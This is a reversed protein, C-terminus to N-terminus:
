NVMYIEVTLCHMYHPIGSCIITFYKDFQRRYICLVVIPLACKVFCLYFVYFATSHGKVAQCHKARNYILKFAIAGFAFKNVLSFTIFCRVWHLGSKLMQQPIESIIQSRTLYLAPYLYQVDIRSTM